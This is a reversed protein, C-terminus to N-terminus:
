SLLYELIEMSNGVIKGDVLADSLMGKKAVIEHIREDITNKTLLNYITINDKTGIRHCRDVAQDYAAKTWPEDM